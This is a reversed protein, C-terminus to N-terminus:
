KSSKLGGQQQAATFSEVVARYNPAMEGYLAGYQAADPRNWTRQVECVLANTSLPVIGAATMRDTTAHAALVSEDGSADLVTYVNYGEAKAQIAPFAVCVSTWVGCLVLTKRGTNKVARVFDANDWASIEGKRPVYTAQPAFESIEPMIPGNPGKPESATTIVPIKALSALKALVVVNARLEQVEIDKVTQFLGSQHDLFCLVTDQPDLLKLGPNAPPSAPRVTEQPQVVSGSFPAFTATVAGMAVLALVVVPPALNM